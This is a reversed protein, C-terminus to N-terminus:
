NIIQYHSTDYFMDMLLIRDIDNSCGELREKNSGSYECCTAHVVSHDSLKNSPIQQYKKRTHVIHVAADADSTRVIQLMTWCDSVCFLKDKTM